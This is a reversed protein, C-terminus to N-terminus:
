WNRIKPFNVQSYQIKCIASVVQGIMQAAKRCPSGCFSEGMSRLWVGEYKLLFFSVLLTGGKHQFIHVRTLCNVKFKSKM